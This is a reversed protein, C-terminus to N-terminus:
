TSIAQGQPNFFAEIMLMLFFINGPSFDIGSQLHINTYGRGIFLLLLALLLSHCLPTIQDSTM